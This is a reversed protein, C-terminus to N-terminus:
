RHRQGLTVMLKPFVKTSVDRASVSQDDTRLLFSFLFVSNSKLKGSFTSKLRNVSVVCLCSTTTALIYCFSCMDVCFCKQKKGTPEIPEEQLRYITNRTKNFKGGKECLALHKTHIKMLHLPTFARNAFQQSLPSGSASLALWCRLFVICLPWQVFPSSFLPRRDKDQM